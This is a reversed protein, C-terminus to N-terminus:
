PNANALRRLLAGVSEDADEYLRDTEGALSLPTEGANDTVAVQAGNDALFQILEKSKLKAAGHMPTQGSDNAENIDAGQELMVKVTEIMITTDLYRSYGMPPRANVGTTAMLPTTGNEASIHPAAGADLLVQMIEPRHTWAAMFYPTAGIPVPSINRAGGRNKGTWQRVQDSVQTNPDAGHALLAKVLTGMGTQVARHLPPFGAGSPANPDAGHSLFLIGLEENVPCSQSISIDLESLETSGFFERGDQRCITIALWLPTIGDLTEVLGLTFQDMQRVTMAAHVDAGAKLLLSASLVDGQQVAFHLATSGGTSSANVDSGASILAEVIGEHKNAAAWMLATQGKESERANIELDHDLLLKVVDLGGARAATMLITEGSPKTAHPDAGGELLARVLVANSNQCALSLPSESYNNAATVDAGASILLAATETDDYYTAWLLATAGDPHQANVDLGEQLLTRIRPQDNLKAADVLRVDETATLADAGLFILALALAFSFPFGRLSLQDYIM